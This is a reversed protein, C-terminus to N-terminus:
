NLSVCSKSTSAYQVSACFIYKSQLQVLLHTTDSRRFQGIVHARHCINKTKSPLLRPPQFDTLMCDRSATVLPPRM